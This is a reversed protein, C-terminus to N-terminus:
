VPNGAVEIIFGPIRSRSHQLQVGFIKGLLELLMMAQSDRFSLQLGGQLELWCPAIECGRVRVIVIINESDLVRRGLHSLLHNFEFNGKIVVSEILDLVAFEVLDLLVIFQQWPSEQVAVM